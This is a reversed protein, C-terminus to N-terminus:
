KRITFSFETGSSTSKNLWLKEELAASIEKAIALGLGSGKENHAKDSKYFRNFIYPQDAPAIGSGNDKVTVVLHQLKESFIVQVCGNEDTFKIANSLLIDLMRAALEQNTYLSPLETVAPCCHFALGMDDCLIQYKEIVPQFVKEPSLTIKSCDAQHSQIRSLELMSVVTQELKNLESLMIGCYAKQKERDPVLGDYMTETLARVSAIPSKLEHSINGVYERQHKEMIHNKRIVMATYCASLIILLTVCSFLVILINKLYFLEKLFLFISGDELPFAVATFYSSKPNIHFAITYIMEKKQIRRLLRRAYQDCDFYDSLGPTSIADKRTGDPQFIFNNASNKKVDPSFSGHELYYDRDSRAIDIMSKNSSYTIGMILSIGLILILIYIILWNRIFRLRSRVKNKM